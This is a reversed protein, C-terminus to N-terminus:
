QSVTYQYCGSELVVASTEADIVHFQIDFSAGAALMFLDRYLPARGTGMEDTTIAEIKTGLGLTLWSGTCNGDAGPHARRELYYKHNPALDRVWTDLYVIKAADNPQRFKVHGFGNDPAGAAPRLIVELNFHPTEPGWPPGPGTDAQAAAVGVISMTVLAAFLKILHM